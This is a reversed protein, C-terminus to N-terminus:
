RLWQELEALRRIVLVGTEVDDRESLLAACMGAGLAGRIDTELSDGVMLCESPLVGLLGAIAHFARADPKGTRLEESIGIADLLKDLGLRTIKQRQGDSPGNTLLATQRGAVRINRLVRLADPFLMVEGNAVGMYLNSLEDAFQPEPAGIATLPALFRRRRYDDRSLDGAAFKAFLKPEESEYIRWFGEVAHGRAVLRESVLELGRRKAGAYDCLTDDLDFILAKISNRPLDSLSKM